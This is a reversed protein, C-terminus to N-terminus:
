NAKGIHYEIITKALRVSMHPLDIHKNRYRKILAVKDGVSFLGDPIDPEPYAEIKAALYKAALNKLTEKEQCTFASDAAFSSLLEYQSNPGIVELFTKTDIVM